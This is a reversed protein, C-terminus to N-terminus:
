KPSGIKRMRWPMRMALTQWGILRMMSVVGSPWFLARRCDLHSEYQRVWSHEWLM